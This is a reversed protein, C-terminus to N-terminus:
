SFMIPPRLSGKLLKAIYGYDNASSPTTVLVTDIFVLIVLLGIVITPLDPNGIVSEYPWRLYVLIATPFLDNGSFPAATEEWYIDHM